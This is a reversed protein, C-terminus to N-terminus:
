PRAQGPPKFILDEAERRLILFQAENELYGWDFFLRAGPQGGPVPLGLAADTTKLWRQAEARHGMRAHALAIVLRNLDASIWDPSRELSEQARRSAEEPRGARLQALALVNLAWRKGRTKAQAIAAGEAVGVAKAFNPVADPTLVCARVLQAADDGHSRAFHKLLGVCSRRYEEREGALVLSTALHLRAMVDDPKEAVGQRWHALRGRFAEAAEDRRGARLLVEGLCFRAWDDPKRRVLERYSEVSEDYRGALRYTRALTPLAAGVGDGDLRVAQRFGYIAEDYKREGRLRLALNHFAVASNPNSRLIEAYPAEAPDHRDPERVEPKTSVVVTVLPPQDRGTHDRAVRFGLLDRRAGPMRGARDASRCNLAVDFWSGGRSVRSGAQSSGVPDEGPSNESYKEEYGDWCWECVNGYMDYLGFANPRKQGVRITKGGPNDNFWGYEGLSVAEDGFSFRTTSGARCAYEWEAEM